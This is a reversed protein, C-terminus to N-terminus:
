YGLRKMIPRCHEEFWNLEHTDIEDKWRELSDNRPLSEAYGSSLIRDVVDLPIEFHRFVKKLTQEFERVMDEYHVILVANEPCREVAEVTREAFERWREMAGRLTSTWGRKYMSLASARGDRAMVVLRAHPVMGLLTDAHRGYPPEKNVWGASAGRIVAAHYNHLALYFDGFCRKIEPFASVSRLEERLWEGARDIARRPVYRIMGKIGSGYLRRRRFAYRRVQTLFYDLYHERKQAAGTTGLQYYEYPAERFLSLVFMGHEGIVVPDGGLEREM